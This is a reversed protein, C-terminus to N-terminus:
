WNESEVRMERGSINSGGDLLPAFWQLSIAYRMPPGPLGRGKIRSITAVVHTTESAANWNDLPTVWIGLHHAVLQM